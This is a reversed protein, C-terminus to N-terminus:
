TLLDWFAMGTFTLAALASLILESSDPVAPPEM